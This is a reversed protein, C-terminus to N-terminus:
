NRKVWRQGRVHGQYIVQLLYLGSTLGGLNMKMENYGVRADRILYQHIRKGQADFLLVEVPVAEPLLYPITVLGSSPNPHVPLVTFEGLAVTCSRNDAQRADEQNNPNRVYVCLYPFDGYGRVLQAKFPYLLSRGPNLTGTWKELVDVVNGTQLILEMSTLPVTGANVIEAYTTTTGNRQNSLVNKVQADTVAVAVNVTKILTDTCGKGGIAILRVSYNGINQYIHRPSNNNSLPSGDGFDWEYNSARRSDNIFQVEVPPVQFNPTSRFDAEPLPEVTITKSITTTCNNTTTIKLSVAFAGTRNFNFTPNADTSSGEGGFNWERFQISGNTELSQDTFRVSYDNCSPTSSFNVQPQAYVTISKSITQACNSQSGEITLSVVYIGANVFRHVPNRISVEPTNDGFNWTWRGIADGTAPRSVNSFVLPLGVCATAVTFDPVAPEPIELVRSVAGQCGASTTITLRVTYTGGKSYTHIPSEETSTNNSSSPDGFDWALSAVTTDAVLSSVTFTISKNACPESTIFNVTPLLRIKMLKERSVLCGNATTISLKVKYTGATAYRHRPNKESSINETSTPDGFNWQLTGESSSENIFQVTDGICVRAYRFSLNTGPLVNVMQTITTDCGSIGSVSLIVPYTGAQQYVHIPHQVTSSRGDGFDWRWKRLLDNKAAVSQDTFRVESFSCVQNPFAFTPSPKQNNYIIIPLTLRNNCGDGNRTILTVQYTGEKTYNHSPNQETSTNAPSDSAFHTDGFNWLWTTVDQGPGSFKTAVQTCQGDVTFAVPPAITSKVVVSDSFSRANGQADYTTLDVYYKGPRSYSLASPSAQTILPQNAWCNNAFEIRILGNNSENVAMGYWRSDAQQHMTYGVLTSLLGFNGLNRVILSTASLSTGLSVRYLNGSFYSGVFAYYKGREHQLSIGTLYPEIDILKNVSVPNGNPLGGFTIRYIAGSLSTVLGYWQGCEQAAAVSFADAPLVVNSASVVGNAISNGLSVITVQNSASNAVLVFVTGGASVLELNRPANLLGAPVNLVSVDSAALVNTLSTGFRYRTIVSSGANAVLGYWNNGERYLKIGEPSNLQHSPIALETVIAPNGLQNGFDARYLRNNSRSTIFGYYSSGDYGIALGNTGNGGSVAGAQSGEVMGALEGSCFDWQYSAAGSSTNALLLNENVCITDPITFIPYPCQARIQISLFGLLCILLWIIRCIFQPIFQV